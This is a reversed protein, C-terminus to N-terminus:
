PTRVFIDATVTVAEEHIDVRSIIKVFWMDSQYINLKGYFDLEYTLLVIEILPLGLFFNLFEDFLELLIYLFPWFVM